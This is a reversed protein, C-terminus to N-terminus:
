NNLSLQEVTFVMNGADGANSVSSRVTANDVIMERAEINIDAANPRLEAFPNGFASAALVANNSTKVIGNVRIDIGTAAGEQASTGIRMDTNISSSEIFFDGGRIFVTGNGRETSSNANIESGSAITITGLADFSDLNNDQNFSDLLVEGEAAVSALNIQGSPAELTGNAVKLDGGVLSLTKGSEVALTSGEVEIAAPVLEEPGQLFGFAEVSPTTLCAICNDMKPDAFFTGEKFRLYDATSVHVSGAVDLKAGSGFMVGAPNILFFNVSPFGSAANAQITGYIDSPMGGTVRSLINTTAPNDPTNSFRATDGSGVRFSDFSHFLNTGSRLGGTVEHITGTTTVETPTEQTLGGTITTVGPQAHSITFLASALWLASVFVM